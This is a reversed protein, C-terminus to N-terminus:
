KASPTVWRNEESGRERGLEGMRGQARLTEKEEEIKRRRNSVSM